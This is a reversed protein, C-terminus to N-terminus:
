FSANIGISWTKIGPYGGRGSTMEPDYDALRKDAMFTFPNNASTFVRLSSMRMRQITEKNFSYGLTLARIRFYSGSFVWFSNFEQYNHTADQSILMRPFNANPDPNESTWRNMFEEKAGAGNFFPQSAENTIYTQVNPVGYTLVDLEFGKYAASLNFGYNFWPVDNGIIERDLANIIGDGNIDRFKIDGPRTNANQRAHNDVETQDRFLGDARLGYISGVSEGVREIFYSNFRERQGGLSLIENNIKSLNGGISYRFDPGIAGRHNITLEVGRNRTKAANLFPVETYNPPRGLGYTALIPPRMLIGDTSKVYYEAVIDLKGNFLTVDLGINSMTVEEWTALPNTGQNQWAGDLANGGFSYAYGTNLLSFYNGITVVDQNGLIGWSARLKLNDMWSIDQLFNEESIRWGASLAPFIAKRLDPRFRSSYDVRLAGEFLYKDAYAYNVRGFYSRMAWEEQVTRNAMGDSDSLIDSPNTSGSGITTMDNNPFNRRGLFAQRYINSEQTVGITAKAFHRGFTREYDATGQLLLEQRKRWYERMDNPTINTAPAGTFFNLIPDMQANFSWENMNTYKLSVLGNISLGKVPTLTANAATQLYNDRNWGSGGEELRRLQNRNAIDGNVVGANVSGWNGNSQRLVQTPLSRNLETWSLDAGDRDFDQKIFSFNTGITLLDKIARTTTNLKAVIRGQDKNPILSSQHLHSLGLYYDTTNGPAILNLNLDSQPATERLVEKYWDVNPYLDPNRGDRFHQIQEASFLPDRGANAMAENYLTAYDVANTWNPLRTASQLGYNGNFSLVVRDGKGRKTTVTIIGNAARSGYMAASSADKLVSMNEIDNPNISAFEQATAPIGDIIYMPSPSGLNSRGRITIGGTNGATGGSTRNVDGPRQLVTVGANLGQLANQTSTVPRNVLQKADISAVAGTLNAKKQTGYAVIVVEDLGQPDVLMRMDVHTRDVNAVEESRYGMYTFLLTEGKNIELVYRGEADSSTAVSRRNKVMVSVGTLPSGLSDRVTGSVTIKEQVLRAALTERGPKGSAPPPAVASLVILKGELRYGLGVPPLVKDLVEVLPKNDFYVNHLTKGALKTDKAAIVNYDTQQKVLHMFATLSINEHQVTVSQSYAFCQKLGSFILLLLM